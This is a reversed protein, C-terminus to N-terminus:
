NHRGQDAQLAAAHASDPPYAEECFECWVWGPTLVNPTSM